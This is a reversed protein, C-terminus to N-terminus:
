KSYKTTKYSQQLKWGYGLAGSLAGGIHIPNLYTFGLVTLTEPSKNCPRILLPIPTVENEYKKFM